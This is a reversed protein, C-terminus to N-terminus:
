HAHSYLEPQPSHPSCSESITTVCRAPIHGVTSLLSTRAALTVWFKRAAM